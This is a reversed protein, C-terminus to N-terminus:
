KTLTASCNFLDAGDNVTYTMTIKGKELKGSGDVEFADNCISQSPMVMNTGAIIAYPPNSCNSIHWFNQILVQSSNSPDKIITVSYNDKACSEAVNWSGLFADRDDALDTPDFDDTCSFMFVILAFISLRSYISKMLFQKIQM